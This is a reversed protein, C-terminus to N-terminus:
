LMRASHDVLEMLGYASFLEQMTKKDVNKGNVRFLTNGSVGWTITANHELGKAEIHLNVSGSGNLSSYNQTTRIDLWVRGLDKVRFNQFEFRGQIRTNGNLESARMNGKLTYSQVISEAEFDGSTDFKEEIKFERKQVNYSHAQIHNLVCTGRDDKVIESKNWDASYKGSGGPVAGERLLSCRSNAIYGALKAVKENSVARHSANKGLAMQVAASTEYFSDNIARLKEYDEQSIDKAKQGNCATLLMAAFCLVATTRTRM